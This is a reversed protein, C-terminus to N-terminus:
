ASIYLSTTSLAACLDAGDHSLLTIAINHSQHSTFAPLLLDHVLGRCGIVLPQLVGQLTESDVGDRGDLLHVKEHLATFHDM